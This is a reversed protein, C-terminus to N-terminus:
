LTLLRGPGEKEILIIAVDILLDNAGEMEIRIVKCFLIKQINLIIDDVNDPLRFFQFTNCVSVIYLCPKGGNGSILDM